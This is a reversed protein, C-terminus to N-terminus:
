GVRPRSPVLGSRRRAGARSRWRGDTGRRASVVHHRVRDPGRGVQFAQRADELDGEVDPERDPQDLRVERDPERERAVRSLVRHGGAQDTRDDLRDVSLLLAIRRPPPRRRRACPLRPGPRRGRRRPPRRRSRRGRGAGGGTPSPGPSREESCGRGELRRRRRRRRGTEATAPSRSAMVVMSPLPQAEHDPDHARQPPAQGHDVCQPRGEVVDPGHRDPRTGPEHRRREAVEHHDAHCTRAQDEGREEPCQVVDEGVDGEACGHRTGGGAQGGRAHHEEAHEPEESRSTGNFRSSGPTMRTVAPQHIRWRNLASIMERCNLDRRPSRHRRRPATSRAQSASWARRVMNAISSPATSARPHGRVRRGVASSGGSRRTSSGARVWSRM